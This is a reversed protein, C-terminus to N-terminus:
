SGPPPGAGPTIAQGPIPTTGTPFNGSASPLVRRLIRCDFFGSVMTLAVSGDMGNGDRSEAVM